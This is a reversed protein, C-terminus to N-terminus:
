AVAQADRVLDPAKKGNAPVGLATIAWGDAARTLKAVVAATKKGTDALDYRVVETDKGASDDIVRAFVNAVQDFTQGQYSTVVLVITQVVTSVASLDVFITEDDGDGEGTLNDGGHRISGDKSKKQNFWVTDIVGKNADLLIASADLDISTAGGRSFFGAKKQVADWGLGLRVKTLQGGDAKTLSLTQNKELSLAM